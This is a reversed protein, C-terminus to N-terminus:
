LAILDQIIISDAIILDKPQFSVSAQPSVTLSSSHNSPCQNLDVLPGASLNDTWTAGARDM